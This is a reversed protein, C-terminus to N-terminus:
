NSGSDAADNASDKPTQKIVRAAYVSGTMASFVVLWRVWPPLFERLEPPLSNYVTLFLSPDAAILGFLMAWLAAIQVSFLKWANRADEILQMM